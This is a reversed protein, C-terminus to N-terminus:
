KDLKETMFFSCYYSNENAQVLMYLPFIANQGYRFYSDGYPSSQTETLYTEHIFEDDFNEPEFTANWSGKHDLSNPFFSQCQLNTSAFEYTVNLVTNNENETLPSVTIKDPICCSPALDPHTMIGVAPSIWTGSLFSLIDASSLQALCYVSFLFVLM